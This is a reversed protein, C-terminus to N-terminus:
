ISISLFAMLVELISIRHSFLILNTKIISIKKEEIHEEKTAFISGLMFSEMGLLALSTGKTITNHNFGFDFMFFM